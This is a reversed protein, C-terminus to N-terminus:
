LLYPYLVISIGITIKREKNPQVHRPLEFTRM